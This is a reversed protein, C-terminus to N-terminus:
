GYACTDWKLSIIKNNNCYNHCSNEMQFADIVKDIDSCKRPMAEKAFAISKVQCTQPFKNTM